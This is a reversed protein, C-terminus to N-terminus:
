VITTNFTIGNVQGAMFGGVRLVKSVDNKEIGNIGTNFVFTVTNGKGFVKRNCGVVTLMQFYAKLDDGESRTRDIIARGYQGQGQDRRDPPMRTKGAVNACSRLGWNTRIIM